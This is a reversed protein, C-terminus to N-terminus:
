RDPAPSAAHNAAPYFSVRALSTVRLVSEQAFRACYIQRVQEIQGDVERGPPHLLILMRSGERQIQGSQDKWQGYGGVITLGQPFRPTIVERVFDQWEPESVEGKPKNMGFYLETRLWTDGPAQQIVSIGDTWSAKGPLSTSCGSIAGLGLGVVALFWYPRCRRTSATSGGEDLGHKVAPSKM